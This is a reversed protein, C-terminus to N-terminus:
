VFLIIMVQMLIAIVLILLLVKLKQNLSRHTTIQNKKKNENVFLEINLLKLESSQVPRKVKKEAGISNKKGIGINSYGNQELGMSVGHSKLCDDHRRGHSILSASNLVKYSPNNYLMYGQRAITKLEPSRHEAVQRFTKRLKSISCYIADDSISVGHWVEEFLTDKTVLEGAHENLCVLVQMVKPELEFIKEDISLQNLAPDVQWDVLQFGGSLHQQM